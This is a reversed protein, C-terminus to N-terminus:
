VGDVADPRAAARFVVVTSAGDASDIRVAEHAGDETEALWIRQPADVALMAPYGGDLEVCVVEAQPADEVEAGPFISTLKRDHALIESEGWPDVRLLSLLWGRHEQSFVQCFDPWLEPPIERLRM